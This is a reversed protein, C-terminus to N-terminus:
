WFTKRYGASSDKFNSTKEGHQRNHFISNKESNKCRFNGKKPTEKVVDEYFHSFSNWANEYQKCNRGSNKFHFNTVILGWKEYWAFQLHRFFKLEWSYENMKGCWLENGFFLNLSCHKSFSISSKVHLVLFILHNAMLFM